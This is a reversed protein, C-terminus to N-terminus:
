PEKFLDLFRDEFESFVGMRDLEQKLEYARSRDRRAEEFLQQVHQSESSSPRPMSEGVETEDGGSAGAGEVTGEM